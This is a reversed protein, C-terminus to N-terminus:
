ERRYKAGSEAGAERIHIYLADGQRWRMSEGDLQYADVWISFQGAISGEDDAEYTVWFGPSWELEFTYAAGDLILEGRALPRVDFSMESAAADSPLLDVDETVRFEVREPYASRREASSLVWEGEFDGGFVYRPSAVEECAATLLLSLAAILITSSRIMMPQVPRAAGSDFREQVSVELVDAELM